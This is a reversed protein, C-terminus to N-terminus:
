ACVSGKGNTGAVHVFRLGEQPNSLRGVLERISDLGPSIGYRGIQQIYDLAEAYNM